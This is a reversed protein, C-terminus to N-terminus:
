GRPRGGRREDVVLVEDAHRVRRVVDRAHRGDVEDAHDVSGSPMAASQVVDAPHDPLSARRADDRDARLGDLAVEERSSISAALTAAANVASSLATAVVEPAEHLEVLELEDARGAHVGIWSVDLDDV